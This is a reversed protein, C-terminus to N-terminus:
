CFRRTKRAELEYVAQAPVAKKSKKGPAGFDLVKVGHTRLRNYVTGRSCRWRKALDIVSYYDQSAGDSKLMEDRM